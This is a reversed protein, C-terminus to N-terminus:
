SEGKAKRRAAWYKKMRIGVARRQAASMPKRRRRRAPAEPSADAASGNERATSRGLAPFATRLTALEDRIQQVRAAAGAQALAKMDIAM